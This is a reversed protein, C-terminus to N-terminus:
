PLEGVDAFLIVDGQIPTQTSALKLFVQEFM